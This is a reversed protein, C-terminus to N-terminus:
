LNEIQADIGIKFNKNCNNTRLQFKFCQLSKPRKAGGKMYIIKAKFQQESLFSDAMKFKPRNKKEFKRM